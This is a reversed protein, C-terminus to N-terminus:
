IQIHCFPKPAGFAEGSAFDFPLPLNFYLDQEKEVNSVIIQPAGELTHHLSALSQRRPKHKLWTSLASYPAMIFDMYPIIIEALNTPLENNPWKGIFRTGHKKLQSLNNFLSEQINLPIEFILALFPFDTQYLFKTFEEVSSADKYFSSPLACIFSHNPYITHHRRIFELTQLLIMKDIAHNSSVNNASDCHTNLKMLTGDDISICPICSFFTLRKQPLNVIPQVLFELQNEKLLATLNNTQILHVKENQLSHAQIYPQHEINLRERLLQFFSTTTVIDQTPKKEQLVAPSPPASALLNPPKKLDNRLSQIMKHFWFTHIIIFTILLGSLLISFFSYPIHAIVITMLVGAIGCFVSPILRKMLSPEKHSPPSIDM